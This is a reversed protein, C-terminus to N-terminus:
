FFHKKRDKKSGFINIIDPLDNELVQNSYERELHLLSTNNLREQGMSNRFVTKTRRLGSSSREATSTTSPIVAFIRIIKALEPLMELLNERCLSEYVDSANAFSLSENEEKFIKYIM